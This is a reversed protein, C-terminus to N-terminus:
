IGKPIFTFLSRRSTETYLYQGLSNCDTIRICFTVICVFLTTEYKLAKFSVWSTTVSPPCFTRRTSENFHAPAMGEPMASFTIRVEPTSTSFLLWTMSQELFHCGCTLVATTIGFSLMHWVVQDVRFLLFRHCLLHELLLALYVLLAICLQTHHLPRLYIWIILSRQPFM